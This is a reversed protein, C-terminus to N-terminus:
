YFIIFFLKDNINGLSGFTIANVSDFFDSMTTKLVAAPDGRLAFGCTAVLNPLADLIEAQSEFEGDGVKEVLLKFLDRFTIAWTSTAPYKTKITVVLDSDPLFKFKLEETESPFLDAGLFLKEGASLTIETDVVITKDVGLLLKGNAATQIYYVNELSSIFYLQLAGRGPHFGEETCVYKIKGKIKITLAYDSRIFYNDSEQYYKIFINDIQAKEYVQNNTVVNFVLGTQNILAFSPAFSYASNFNEYEVEGVNYTYNCDFLIGDINVRINEPITGDMPIEYITSEYAKLKQIVGGELCNITVGEAVNDIMKPLDMKGKYYMQYIDTADDWKLIILTLDCNIGKTKWFLNRLITAGDGVFKLPVTFTRNLGYYKESRGFSVKNELWGEPSQPLFNMANNALVNGNSDVYYSNGNNTDTIFYIFTKRKL